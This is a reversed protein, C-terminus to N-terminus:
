GELVFGEFYIFQRMWVLDHIHNNLLSSSRQALTVSLGENREYVAQDSTNGDGIKPVGYFLVLTMHDRAVNKTSMLSHFIMNIECSNRNTFQIIFQNIHQDFLYYM